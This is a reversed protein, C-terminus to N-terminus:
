NKIRHVWANGYDNNCVESSRYFDLSSHLSSGVVCAAYILRKSYIMDNGYENSSYQWSSAMFEGYPDDVVFANSKEGVICVVHGSHSFYGHTILQYGDKMWGSIDNLSASVSFKYEKVRLSLYDGMVQPSGPEGADLLAERISYVNETGIMKAICASQCTSADPQPVYDLIKSPM